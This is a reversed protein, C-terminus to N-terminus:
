IAQAEGKNLQPSWERQEFKGGGLSLFLTIFWYIIVDYKSSTVSQYPRWFTGNGNISQNIGRRNGTYIVDNLAHTLLFSVGYSCAAGGRGWRTSAWTIWFRLGGWDIPFGLNSLSFGLNSLPFGMNFLLLGVYCLIEYVSQNKCQKMQQYAVSNHRWM